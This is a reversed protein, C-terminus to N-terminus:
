TTVREKKRNSCSRHRQFQTLWSTWCPNIWGFGREFERVGAGSRRRDNTPLAPPGPEFPGRFLREFIERRESQVKTPLFGTSSGRANGTAHCDRSRGCPA